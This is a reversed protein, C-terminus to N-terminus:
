NRTGGRARAGSVSEGEGVGGWRCRRFFHGWGGRADEDGAVTIVLGRSHGKDGGGM